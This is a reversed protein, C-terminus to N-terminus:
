AGGLGKALEITEGCKCKVKMTALAESEKVKVRSKCKPCQVEFDGKGESM